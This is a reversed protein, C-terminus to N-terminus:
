SLKRAIIFFKDSVKSKPHTYLLPNKLKQSELIENSFPIKELIHSGHLTNTSEDSFKNLIIGLNLIKMENLLEILDYVIKTSYKPDHVIIAESVNKLVHSLDSSSPTDLIIYDHDALLDQYHYSFKDYSHVNTPIIKLGTFHRYIADNIHSEGRFVNNMSVPVDHIALHEVLNNKTFDADFLLVKNKLSHLALALNLATTTKGVDDGLSIIAISRAM